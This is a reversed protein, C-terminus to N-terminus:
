LVPPVAAAPIFWNGGTGRVTTEETMPESPMTTEKTM